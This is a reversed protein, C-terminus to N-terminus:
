KQYFFSRFIRKRMSNNQLNDELHTENIATIEVEEEEEREWNM